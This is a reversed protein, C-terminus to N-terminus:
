LEITQEEVNGWFINTEYGGYWHNSEIHNEGNIDTVSEDENYGASAKFREREDRLFQMATDHTKFVKAGFDGDEPQWTAVYITTNQM